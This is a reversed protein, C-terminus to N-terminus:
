QKRMEQIFIKEVVAETVKYISLADLANEYSCLYFCEHNYLERKVINELGNEEIDKAVGDTHVKEMGDLVKQVNDVPVFLNISGILKYKVGDQKADDFQKQSFAFFAGNDDWLKSYNKDTYDSLYKM